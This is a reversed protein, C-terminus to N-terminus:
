KPKAKQSLGWELNSRAADYDPKIRIAQRAAQIGEDWRGMALYAAAMNNYAEAYGPRLNLAKQAAGLCDDYDKNNCFKASLNVLEEPKMTDPFRSERAHTEREALEAMFRRAAEEGWALRVTEEMLKHAAQLNGEQNYVEMLAERAPFSLPNARMAAELQAQSEALRGQSYLWGGYFVRPEAQNPAVELARQFHREAEAKRDLGALAVGLNSEVPGYAPDLSEARELYSLATGYDHRNLFTMGYNMMGRANNPSKVTVDRWLSEETRWVTNRIHTGAAALVLLVVVAALTARLRRSARRDGPVPHDFVGAALGGAADSSGASRTFVGAASGLLLRLGWVVSLALGVFPFFMRHDNTVESMPVLSAPLLALFFWLIGFAVPRTEPRRSTRFAAVLLAAVFLYGALAALSFPGSVPRWDTDASLGTPLFFTKFYHLAVWPQTARYLWPSTAAGHPIAAPTMIWIFLAAVATVAFAPGTARLAASAKARNEAWDGLTGEQEVLFVYSLLLLPFILASSNSLYAAIAPLLYWGRKRQGPYAAFCLLSAVVGLTSYLGSRQTIYNVTEANAPHLGYCAAALLATWLNSPHPDRLPQGYPGPRASAAVVARDMIRRFLFFMLILQVAFWLFTSLHFFFPKFGKALRYDIALSVAVLPRYAPDAPNLRNADTFFGPVNHLNQIFRNELISHSDDFHFGNQFHNAYAALVVLVLGLCLLVTRINVNLRLV